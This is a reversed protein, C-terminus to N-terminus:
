CHTEVLAQSQQYQTPTQGTAQKFSRHFSALSNFGSKLAVETVPLEDAELLLQKAENIRHKMILQAYSCGFHSKVMSSLKRPHVGAACALEEVSLDSKLHIKQKNLLHEIRMLVNTNHSQKDKM